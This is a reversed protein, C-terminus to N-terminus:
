GDALELKRTITCINSRYLYDFRIQFYEKLVLGAVSILLLNIYTSLQIIM